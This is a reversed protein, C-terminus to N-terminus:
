RVAAGGEVSAAVYDVFSLGADGDPFAFVVLAALRFPDVAVRCDLGSTRPMKGGFRGSGILPDFLPRRNRPYRRILAKM